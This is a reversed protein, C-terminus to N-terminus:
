ETDSRRAAAERQARDGLQRQLLPDLTIPRDWHDFSAVIAHRLARWRLNDPLPQLGALVEKWSAEPQQARAKVATRCNSGNLKGWFCALYVDGPKNYKEKIYQKVRESLPEDGTQDGQVIDSNTKNIAIIHNDEYLIDLPKM